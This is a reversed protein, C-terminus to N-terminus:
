RNLNDKGKREKAFLETALMPFPYRKQLFMEYNQKNPIGLVRIFFIDFGNYLRQRIKVIIARM